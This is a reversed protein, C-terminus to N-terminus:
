EKIIQRLKETGLKSKLKKALLALEYDSLEDEGMQKRKQINKIVEQILQPQTIKEAKIVTNSNLIQIKLSGYHWLLQWLGKFHYSVDQIKQYETETVQRDFLGQQRYLIVRHSTILFANYYWVVILRIFILLGVAFFILFLILGITQWRFLLFMLFFPLLLLALAIIGAPLFTVPHRRVLRVLEENDKLNKTFYSM